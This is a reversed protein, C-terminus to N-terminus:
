TSDAAYMALLYTSSVVVPFSLILQSPVDKNLRTIFQADFIFFIVSITYNSVVGSCKNVLLKETRNRVYEVWPKYTKRICSPSGSLIHKALLKKEWCIKCEMRTGHTQSLSQLSVLNLHLGQKIQRQALLPKWWM